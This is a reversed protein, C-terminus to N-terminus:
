FNGCIKEYEALAKDHQRRLKAWKAFQDQSSTNNMETRLKLVERLLRRQDHVAKSTITPMRNYLIWIKFCNTSAVEPSDCRSPHVLNNITSAGITNVLEIMMELIFVVVLLSPMGFSDLSQIRLLSIGTHISVCPSLNTSTQSYKM